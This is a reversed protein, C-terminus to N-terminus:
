SQNERWDSVWATAEAVGKKFPQSTKHAAHGHATLEHSQAAEGINAHYAMLFANAWEADNVTADMLGARHLVRYAATFKSRPGAGKGELHNTLCKNQSDILRLHQLLQDLDSKAFPAICLEEVTTRTPTSAPAPSKVPAVSDLEPVFLKKELEELQEHNKLANDLRDRTQKLAELRHALRSANAPTVPITLARAIETYNESKLKVLERLRELALSKFHEPLNSLRQRLLLSDHREWPFNDDDTGEELQQRLLSLEERMADTFFGPHQAMERIGEYYGYM